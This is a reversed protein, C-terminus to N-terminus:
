LVHDWIVAPSAGRGPRETIVESVGFHEEESPTSPRVAVLAARATVQCTEIRRLAADLASEDEDTAENYVEWDLDTGRHETVYSRVADLAVAGNDTRTVVLQWGDDFQDVFRVTPVTATPM